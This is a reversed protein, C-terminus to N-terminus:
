HKLPHSVKTILIYAFFVALGLGTSGFAMIRRSHWAAWAGIVWLIVSIIAFIIFYNWIM